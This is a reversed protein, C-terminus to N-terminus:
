RLPLDHVDEDPEVPALLMMLNMREVPRAPRQELQPDCMVAVSELEETGCGRGEPIRGADADRDLAPLPEEDLVEQRPTMRDVRHVGLDGGARPLAIARRRHLAVREVGEREGVEQATLDIAPAGQAQRRLGQALELREHAVPLAAHDLVAAHRMRPTGDEHAVVGPDRVRQLESSREIV